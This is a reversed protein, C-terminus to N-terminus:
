GEQTWDTTLVKPAAAPAIPEGFPSTAAPQEKAGRIEILAPGYENVVKTITAEDHLAKKFESDILIANIHKAFQTPKKDVTTYQFHPIERSVKFNDKGEIANGGCFYRWAIGATRTGIMEFVSLLAKFEARDSDILERFNGDWSPRFPAAPNMRGAAIQGKVWVTAAVSVLSRNVRQKELREEVAQKKREAAITMKVNASYAQLIAKEDFSMGEIEDMTLATKPEVTGYPVTRRFGQIDDSEIRLMFMGVLYKVLGNFEDVKMGPSLASILKPNLEYETANRLAGTNKYVNLVGAMALTKLHEELRVIGSRTAKLLSNRPAYFGGFKGETTCSSIANVIDVGCPGFSKWYEGWILDGKAVEHMLVDMLHELKAQIM